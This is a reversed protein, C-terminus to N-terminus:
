LWSRHKIQGVFRLDIGTLVKKEFRPEEGFPPFFVEVIEGGQRGRFHPL